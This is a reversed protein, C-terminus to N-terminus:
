LGGGLRRWYDVMAEVAADPSDVVVACGGWTSHWGEEDATLKRASPPKQGDKVELVLNLGRWGVLLDPCGKGIAALTQVTMGASRLAKVVAPHNNDLRPAQRM